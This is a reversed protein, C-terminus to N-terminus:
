SPLELDQIAFSIGANTRRVWWGEDTAEEGEDGGGVLVALGRYLGSVRMQSHSARRDPERVWAAGGDLGMWRGLDVGPGMVEGGTQMELGAAPRAAGAVM